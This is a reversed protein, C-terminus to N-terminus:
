ERSAPAALPKAIRFPDDPFPADFLVDSYGAVVELTGLVGSADSSYTERRTAIRLDDFMRHDSWVVVRYDADEARYSHIREVLHSLRSIYFDQWDTSEGEKGGRDFRVRIVVCPGAPVGGPGIPTREGRFELRCQPDILNWPNMFAFRTIQGFARPFDLDAPDALPTGGRTVELAEGDIRVIQPVPVDLDELYVQEVAGLGLRHRQRTIKQPSKQGGYFELRYTYEVHSRRSWAAYGGYAEFTASLVEAAQPDAIALLREDLPSRPAEGCGALGPIISALALTLLRRRRGDSV